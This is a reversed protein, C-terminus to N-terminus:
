EYQNYRTNWKDIDLLCDKLPFEITEAKLTKYALDLAQSYNEITTEKNPFRTTIYPIDTEHEVTIDLELCTERPTDRLNEYVFLKSDPTLYKNYMMNYYKVLIKVDNIVTDDQVHVSEASQRSDMTWKRTTHSYAMSLAQEIINQRITFIKVQPLTWLRNWARVLGDPESGSKIMAHMSDLVNLHNKIVVTHDQSKDTISNILTELTPNHKGNKWHVVENFFESDDFLSNISHMLLTSGSRPTSIINYLM